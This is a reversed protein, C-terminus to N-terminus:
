KHFDFCEVMTIDSMLRILVNCQLWAENSRLFFVDTKIVSTFNSVFTVLILNHDKKKILFKNLNKRNYEATLPTTKSITTLM